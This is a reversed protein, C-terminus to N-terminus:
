EAINLRKKARSVDMSHCGALRAIERTTMAVCDPHARLWVEAKDVGAVPKSRVITKTASKKPKPLASEIREMVSLQAEM